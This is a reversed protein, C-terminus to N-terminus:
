EIPPLGTLRDRGAYAIATLKGNITKVIMPTAGKFFNGVVTVRGNVIPACSMAREPNVLDVTGDGRVGWNGDINSVCLQAGEFLSADEEVGMYCGAQSCHAASSYTSLPAMKIPSNARTVASIGLEATTVTAGPGAAFAPSIALSMAVISLYMKKM